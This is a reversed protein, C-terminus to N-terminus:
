PLYIPHFNGPPQKTDQEKPSFFNWSEPPTRQELADSQQWRFVCYFKLPWKLIRFFYPFILRPLQQSVPVSLLNFHELQVSKRVGDYLVEQLNAKVIKELLKKNPKSSSLKTDTTSCFNRFYVYLKCCGSQLLPFFISLFIYCTNKMAKYWKHFSWLLFFLGHFSLVVM